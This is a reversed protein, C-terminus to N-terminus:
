IPFFIQFLNSVYMHIVSESQQNMGSIIVLFWSKNNLPGTTDLEKCGWPSYCALSRQIEDDGPAWESEFFFFSVGSLRHYWWVMEDETTGKEEQRKDKGADSNKGILRSKEDPPWFIPAEAEAETTGIFIWSENGKLISQNSRRAKQPVRSDEGAGCNLLM